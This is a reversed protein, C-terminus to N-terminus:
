LLPLVQAPKAASRLYTVVRPDGHALLVTGADDAVVVAGAHVSELTDGRWIEVLPRYMEGMASVPRADAMMGEPVPWELSRGGRACDQHGRLPAIGDAAHQLRPQRALGPATVLDGHVRRRRHDKEAEGQDGGEKRKVDLRDAHFSVRLDGEPRPEQQG